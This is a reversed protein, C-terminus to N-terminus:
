KLSKFKISGCLHKYILFKKKKGSDKKKKKKLM